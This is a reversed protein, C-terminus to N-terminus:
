SEGRQIWEFCDAEPHDLAAEVGIEFASLETAEIESLEFM